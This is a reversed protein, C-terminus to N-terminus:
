ASKKKMTSEIHKMLQSRWYASKAVFIWCTPISCLMFGAFMFGIVLSAILSLPNLGLFSLFVLIAIIAFSVFALLGSIFGIKFTNSARKKLDDAQESFYTDILKDSSTGM